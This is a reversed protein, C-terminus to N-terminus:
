RRWRAAFAGLSMVALRKAILYSHAYRRERLTASVFATRFDVDATEALAIAGGDVAYIANAERPVMTLGYGCVSRRVRRVTLVHPTAVAARPRTGYLDVTFDFDALGNCAARLWESEAECWADYICPGRQSFIPFRFAPEVADSRIPVQWYNVSRKYNAGSDGFNTTLSVTPYVFYKGAEIMYALFLKKWSRDSWAKVNTPIAPGRLDPHPHRAYWDRFGQWHRRSWAQGYSCPLAQFYADDGTALPRFPQLATENFEPSFLAVGALRDEDVYHNLAAVAYCYFHPSVFLDDELVIAAGFESALDGCALIHNRLGLNQEFCRLRKRGHRWDFAEAVTRTEAPGGGDISITLDIESAGDYRAAALSGLLRHLSAPRNFAAVVIAPRIM